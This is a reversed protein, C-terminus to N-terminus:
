TELVDLKKKPCELEQHEFEVPKQGKLPVTTPATLQKKVPCPLCPKKTEKQNQQKMLKKPTMMEEQKGREM